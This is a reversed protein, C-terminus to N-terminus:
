HKRELEDIYANVTKVVKAALKETEPSYPLEIVTDCSKAEIISIHPVEANDATHFDLKAMNMEATHDVPMNYIPM